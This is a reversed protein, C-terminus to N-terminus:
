QDCRENPCRELGDCIVKGDECGCRTTAAGCRPCKKFRMLEYREVSGQQSMAQWTALDGSRLNPHSIWDHDPSNRKFDGVAKIRGCNTCQAECLDNPAVIVFDCFQCQVIAPSSSLISRCMSKQLLRVMSSAVAPSIRSLFDISLPSVCVHDAICKLKTIRLRDESGQNVTQTDNDQLATSIYGKWCVFCAGHGCPPCILDQDDELCSPCFGKTALFQSRTQERPLSASGGHLSFLITAVCADSEIFIDSLQLQDISTLPQIYSFSHGIFSEFKSRPICVASSISSHKPFTEQYSPVAIVIHFICSPLQFFISTDFLSHQAACAELHPSLMAVYQGERVILGKQELYTLVHSIKGPPASTLNACQLTLVCEAVFATQPLCALIGRVIPAHDTDTFKCDSTLESEYFSECAPAFASLCHASSCLDTPVYVNEDNASFLTVLGLQSLTRLCSSTFSDPIGTVRSLTTCTGGQSRIIACLICASAVSIRAFGDRAAVVAWGANVLSVISSDQFKLNLVAAFEPCVSTLAAQSVQVFNTGSKAYSSSFSLHIQKLAARSAAFSGRSSVCLFHTVFDIADRCYSCQGMLLKRCMTTLLAFMSRQLSHSPISSLLSSLPWLQHHSDSGLESLFMDMVSFGESNGQNFCRSAISDAAERKARECVSRLVFADRSVARSVKEISLYMHLVRSMFTSPEGAAATDFLCEHLCSILPCETSSCTIISSITGSNRKPLFAVSALVIMVQIEFSDMCNDIVSNSFARNFSAKILPLFRSVESKMPFFLCSHLFLIQLFPVSDCLDRWFARKGLDSESIHTLMFGFTHKFHEFNTAIITRVSQLDPNAAMLENVFKHSVISAILDIFHLDNYDPCYNDEIVARCGSRNPADFSSQMIFLPRIGGSVLSPPLNQELLVRGFQRISIKPITMNLTVCVPQDMCPPTFAAVNKVQGGMLKMEGVSNFYFIGDSDLDVSASSAVGIGFCQTTSCKRLDEREFRVSFEHLGSFFVDETMAFAAHGDKSPNAVFSRLNESIRAGFSRLASFRLQPLLTSHYNVLSTLAKSEYSLPVRCLTQTLFNCADPDESLSYVHSLFLQAELCNWSESLLHSLTSRQGSRASIQSFITSSLATSDFLRQFVFRKLENKIVQGLDPFRQEQVPTDLEHFVATVVFLYGFVKDCKGKDDSKFKFLLKDGYHILPPVGNVGAWCAQVGRGQYVDGIKKDDYFFTACDDEDTRCREDFRVELSLAGVCCTLQIIFM